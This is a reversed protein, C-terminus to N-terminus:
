SYNQTETMTKEDSLMIHGEYKVNMRVAIIYGSNPCHSLSCADLILHFNIQIKLLLCETDFMKWTVDLIGSNWVCNLVLTLVVLSWFRTM